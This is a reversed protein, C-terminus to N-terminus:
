SLVSQDLYILYSLIFIPSVYDYHPSVYKTDSFSFLSLQLSNHILFSDLDYLYLILLM